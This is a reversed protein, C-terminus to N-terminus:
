NVKRLGRYGRFVFYLGAGSVFFSYLNVAEPLLVIGPELVAQSPDKPNYYVVVAKGAPYRDAFVIPYLSLAYDIANVASSSYATGTVTYQYSIFVKTETHYDGDYEKFSTGQRICSTITGATSPWGQSAIMTPIASLFFGWVLILCGTILRLFPKVGIQQYVQQVKHM